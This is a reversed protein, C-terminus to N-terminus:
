HIIAEVTTQPTPRNRRDNIERYAAEIPVENALLRRVRRTVVSVPRKAAETEAHACAQEFSDLSYQKLRGTGFDHKPFTTEWKRSLTIRNLILSKRWSVTSWLRSRPRREIETYASLNDPSVAVAM